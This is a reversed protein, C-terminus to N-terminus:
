ITRGKSYLRGSTMISSLLRGSTTWLGVGVKCSCSKSYYDCTFAVVGAGTLINLPANYDWQFDVLV